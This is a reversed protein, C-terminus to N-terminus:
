QEVITNGAMTVGGNRALAKGMLTAGTNLTISQMAMITGKFVSTTGLTASTGVQWFINAPSAGGSLIMKQDASLKLNGTVQFIWVADAGGTLTIDSPITVASTWRYLGPTLTLGGIAGGSLNLFDPLKRGAADTYAAQMDGIAVTLNTPTPPDNNAAFVGGVVQPSTWSTGAKTLAFGTIYSAAAPSM